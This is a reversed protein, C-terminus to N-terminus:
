SELLEVLEHHDERSRGRLRRIDPWADLVDEFRDASVFAAVAARAQARVQPVWDNLREIITRLTGSQLREGARKTAAERVFGNWHSMFMVLDDANEAKAAAELLWAECTPKTNTPAPFLRAVLASLLESIPV